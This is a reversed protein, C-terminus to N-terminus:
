FLSLQYAKKISELDTSKKSISEIEFVIQKQFSSPSFQLAKKYAMGSMQHYLSPSTALLQIKECLKKIDKSDIQFGEVGNTVLETVGGVPPVIVPKQYYMAELVTMGFTEVWEETRSLNMVLHAQRYFSHVDQQAPYIRLNAPLTQNKFFSEISQSNANVVLCFQLMPLKEACAVFEFVGKYAKLSCLMLVMFDNQIGKQQQLAEQVFADPLSNYVVTSPSLCSTRTKLDNSVFLVKQATLNVVLLLFKKLPKPKISVEHIHYVVKNRKIYAALAAGFPLISNIYVIDKKRATLLIKFFISVQSYLFLILTIWKNKNWSYFIGHEKVTGIDSLFGKGGPTATFLEVKFGKKLLSELSQRLVFPSGSFDNLLHVALIRENKM